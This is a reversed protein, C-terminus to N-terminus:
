NSAIQNISPQKELYLEGIEESNLLSIDLCLEISVVYYTGNAEYEPQQM